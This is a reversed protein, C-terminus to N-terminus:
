PGLFKIYFTAFRNKRGEENNSKKGREKCGNKM